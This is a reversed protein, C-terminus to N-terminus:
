ILKGLQRLFLIRNRRKSKATSYHLPGSLMLGFFFFIKSVGQPLVDVAKYGGSSIFLKASVDTPTNSNTSASSRADGKEEDFPNSPQM